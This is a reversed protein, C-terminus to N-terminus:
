EMSSLLRLSEKICMEEAQSGREHLYFLQRKNTIENRSVTAYRHCEDSLHQCNCFWFSGQRTQPKSDVFLAETSCGLPRTIAPNSGPTETNCQEVTEEKISIFDSLLERLQGNSM